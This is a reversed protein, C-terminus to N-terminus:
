MPHALSQDALAGPDDVLDAGEQELAANRDSLSKPEQTGLQRTNQCCRGFHQRRAHHADDRSQGLVPAPEILPDLAYGTLDCGQCALVDAALPQHTHRADPREDGASHYGRDTSALRERFTAVEGGPQTQHGFLERSSVADDEALYGLAAIAIQANQEHLSGPHHQDLWLAPFTMPKLTPDFRGFLPQM